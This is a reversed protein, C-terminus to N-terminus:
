SSLEAAQHGKSQLRFLTLSFKYSCGATSSNTGKHSSEGRYIERWKENMLIIVMGLFFISHFFFCRHIRYAAKTFAQTYAKREMGPGFFLVKFKNYALLHLRADFSADQGM